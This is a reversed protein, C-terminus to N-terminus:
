GPYTGGWDERGALMRPIATAGEGSVGMWAGRYVGEKEKGTAEWPRARCWDHGRSNASADHARVDRGDM